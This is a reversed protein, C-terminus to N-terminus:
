RLEVRVAFYLWFTKNKRSFEPFYCHIIAIIKRPGNPLEQFPSYIAIRGVHIQDCKLFLNTQFM